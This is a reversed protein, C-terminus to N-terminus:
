AIKEKLLAVAAKRPGSRITDVISRHEEYIEMPDPCRRQTRRFHSRIRYVMTEWMALLDPQGARELLSRHFAVDTEAIAAYDKKLCADKMRALLADWRAFDEDGLEDFIAELAYAEIMRRIPVILERIERPAEAAVVVGRNPRMVLLGQHTLQQLAQRIVGRGVGFRAVLEAETLRQGESLRGSLIEERLEDVVRSTRPSILGSTAM